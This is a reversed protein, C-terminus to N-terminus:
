AARRYTHHLGGLVPTGIIDGESSDVRRPVPSNGDLATHPRQDYYAVFGGRIDHSTARSRYECRGRGTRGPGM